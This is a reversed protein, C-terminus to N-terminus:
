VKRVAMRFTKLCVTKPKWDLWHIGKDAVCLDQSAYYPGNPNISFCNSFWFGSKYRSACHVANQIDNDMDPTSFFQQDHSTIFGASIGGNASDFVGTHLKYKNQEDEVRFGRYVVNKIDGSFDKFQFWVMMTSGPMSTLAHIDDNGFWYDGEVDGFGNKYDNWNRNFDVSGDVRRQIVTWGLSAVNSMACYVKRQKGNFTITYVGSTTYGARFWDDCLSYRPLM